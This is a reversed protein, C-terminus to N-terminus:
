VHPTDYGETEYDGCVKFPFDINHNGEESGTPAQRQPHDEKMETLPDSLAHYRHHTNRHAAQDTMQKHHQGTEMEKQYDCVVTHENM